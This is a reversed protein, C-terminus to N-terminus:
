RPASQRTICELTIADKAAQLKLARSRKAGPTDSLAKGNRPDTKDDAGPPMAEPSKSRWEDSCERLIDQTSKEGKAAIVSGGLLTAVLVALIRKTM